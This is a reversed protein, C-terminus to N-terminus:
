EGNRVQFLSGVPDNIVGDASREVSNRPPIHHAVDALLLLLSGLTSHSIGVRHEISPIHVVWMALLFGNIGFIGFIGARARVLASTPVARDTPNVSM